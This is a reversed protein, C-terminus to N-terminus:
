IVPPLLSISGRNRKPSLNLIQKFCFLKQYFFDTSKEADQVNQWNQHEHQQHRHDNPNTAAQAAEQTCAAGRASVPSGDVITLM